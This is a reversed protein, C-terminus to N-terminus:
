INKLFRLCTKDVTHHQLSDCNDHVIVIEITAAWANDDNKVCISVEWFMIGWTVSLM